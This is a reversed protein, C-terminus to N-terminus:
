LLEDEDTVDDELKVARYSDKLAKRATLVLV